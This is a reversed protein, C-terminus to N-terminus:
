WTPVPSEITPVDEEVEASVTEETQATTEEANASYDYPYQTEETTVNQTEEAAQEESESKAEPKEFHFKKNKKTDKNPEIELIVGFSDIFSFYSTLTYDGLRSSDISQGDFFKINIDGNSNIKLDFIGTIKQNNLAEALEEATVSNWGDMDLTAMIKKDNYFILVGEKSVILKPKKCLFNTLEEDEEGLVVVEGMPKVLFTRIKTVVDSTERKGVVAVAINEIYKNFFLMNNPAYWVIPYLFELNDDYVSEVLRRTQSNAADPNTKEWFDSDSFEIDRDAEPIMGREFRKKGVYM